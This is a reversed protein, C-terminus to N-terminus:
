VTGEWAAPALIWLLETEVELDAQWNHPERGDFTLSDGAALTLTRDSFQVTISGALVHVVDVPSNITYLKGGGSGGPSVTSRVVQLRSERRPTLLREN